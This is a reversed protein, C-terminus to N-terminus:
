ILDGTKIHESRIPYMVDLGVKSYLQQNVERDKQARKIEDLLEKIFSLFLM